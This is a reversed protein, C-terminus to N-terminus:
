ASVKEAIEDLNNHFRNNDYACDTAWKPLEEFVTDSLFRDYVASLILSRKTKDDSNEFDENIEKYIEKIEEETLMQIVARVYLETIITYNLWDKVDFHNDSYFDEVFLFDFNRECSILSYCGSHFLPRQIVYVIEYGDETYANDGFANTYINVVDDYSYLYGKKALEDIVEEKINDAIYEISEFIKDVDYKDDFLSLNNKRKYEDIIEAIEKDIKEGKTKFIDELIEAMKGEQEFADFSFHEEDVAEIFDYEVITISGADKLTEKVKEIMKKFNEEINEEDSVFYLKVTGDETEIEATYGYDNEYVTAKVEESLWPLSVNFYMKGDAEKIKVVKVM